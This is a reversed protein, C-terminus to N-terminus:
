NRRANPASAESAVNKIADRIPPPTGSGGNQNLLLKVFRRAQPSLISDKRLVVGYMRKPFFEGAPLVEVKEDGTIGVSSIISIGLNLEVYKKIADWGGVEMAVQYTLGNKKFASDLVGWTSLNRPPLILPYRAIDALTVIKQRALPHGLCTIVVPEYSFMPHFELDDPADIMPGVAFDVLGARLQALGEIGTVNHLRVEVKPHLQRFQEVYRPLVYLITSGGGAVEVYGEEVEARQHHFEKDLHELKEVLPKVMKLLLEGDPTLHISAGRRIFLTVAFEEELQRIQQSVAPQSLRIHAAAKSISGMTAAYCFGRLQQCRNQKYRHV